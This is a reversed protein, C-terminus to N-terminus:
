QAVRMHLSSSRVPCSAVRTQRLPVSSRTIELARASPTFLISVRESREPSLGHASRTSM